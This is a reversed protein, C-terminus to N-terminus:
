LIITWRWIIGFADSKTILGFTKHAMIRDALDYLGVESYAQVGTGNGENSAVEATFRIKGGSAGDPFDYTTAKSIITAGYLGTDAASVPLAQTPDLPEHGGDGCKISSVVRNATDDGGLLHAMDSRGLYTIVNEGLDITNVLNGNKDVILAEVKTKIEYKDAYNVLVSGGVNDNAKMNDSLQTKM